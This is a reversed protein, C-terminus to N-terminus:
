CFMFAIDYFEQLLDCTAFHEKMMVYLKGVPSTKSAKKLLTEFVRNTNLSYTM